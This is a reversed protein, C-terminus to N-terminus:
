IKNNAHEYVACQSKRMYVLSLDSFACLLSLLLFAQRDRDNDNNGYRRDKERLLRNCIEERLNVSLWFTCWGDTKFERVRIHRLITPELITFLTTFSHFLLAVSPISHSIVQPANNPRARTASPTKLLWCPCAFNLQLPLFIINTNPATKIRIM